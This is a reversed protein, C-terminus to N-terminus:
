RELQERSRRALPRQRSATRPQRHASPACFLFLLPPPRRAIRGAPSVHAQALCQAAPLAALLRAHVCGHFMCYWLIARPRGGFDLRFGFLSRSGFNPGASCPLTLLGRAPCIASVVHCAQRGRALICRPVVRISVHALFHAWTHIPRLRIPRMV